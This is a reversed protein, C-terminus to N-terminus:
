LSKIIKAPNGAVIVNAPVPKSVVARAAIISNDGIERVNCLIIADMGVWVNKGILLDKGVPISHPDLGHDHTQINVAESLLTGSGIKLTGSFDIKCFRGIVVNDDVYLKGSKLETTLKVNRGIISNDGIFINGPYRYELKRLIVVKKGVRGLNGKIIWQAINDCIIEILRSGIICLAGLVGSLRQNWFGKLKNIM